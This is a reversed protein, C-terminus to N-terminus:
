SDVVHATTYPSRMEWGLTEYLARGAATAVLVQTAAPSKRTSRLAQMLYSALGRRQHAPATEIQDYIFVGDAEAAHGSAALEGRGTVIRASLTPGSRYLQLSYGAALPPPAAHFADGTMVFRPEDFQWRETLLPHMEEESGCLKLFVRPTAITEALVRLGEEPRAFVYRRLEHPLGTEVRWGGHEAVPAPLGRAVSRARLWGEIM